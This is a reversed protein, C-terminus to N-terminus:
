QRGSYPWQSPWQVAVTRGSYPWQMAVTFGWARQGRTAPPMDHRKHVCCGHSRLCTAKKLGVLECILSRQRRLLAHAVRASLMGSIMQEFEAM